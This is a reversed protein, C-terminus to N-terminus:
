GRDSWPDCEARVEQALIQNRAMEGLKDLVKVRYGKEARCIEPFTHFGDQRASRHYPENEMNEWNNHSLVYLAEDASGYVRALVRAWVDHHTFTPNKM